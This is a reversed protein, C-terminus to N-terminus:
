YFYPFFFRSIDQGIGCCLCYVLYLPVHLGRLDIKLICFWCNAAPACKNHLCSARLGFGLCGYETLCTAHATHLELIPDLIPSLSLCIGPAQKGGLIIHKMNLSFYHRFVFLSLAISSSVERVEPHMHTYKCYVSGGMYILICVSYVLMFFECLIFNIFQSIKGFLIRVSPLLPVPFLLDM